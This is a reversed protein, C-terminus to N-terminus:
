KCRKEVIGPGHEDYEKKSIWMQHFSGLSALISGGIWAASRREIVNGPANVRVKTGAYAGMLDLNIRDTMGQILSTGGTVVINNLLQAKVDADVASLSSSVLGPITENQNPTSPSGEGTLAIKADFLAEAVKYREIGFVNNWGDPMEFPRPPETARLFETSHALSQNGNRAPNWVQVCSEKFETM